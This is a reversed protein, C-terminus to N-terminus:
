NKSWRAPDGIDITSGISDFIKSKTDMTSLLLYEILVSYREEVEPYLETIVKKEYINNYFEYTIEIMEIVAIYLGVLDGRRIRRNISELIGYLEIPRKIIHFLTGSIMNKDCKDLSSNKPSGDMLILVMNNLIQKHHEIANLFPEWEFYNVDHLYKFFNNYLDSFVNFGMKPLIKNVLQAANFRIHINTIQNNINGMLQGCFDFTETKIEGYFDFHNPYDMFQTITDIFMLIDSSLEDSDFPLKHCIQLYTYCAKQIIANDEKFLLEKFRDLNKKHENVAFQDGFAAMQNIGILSNSYSRLVIMHFVMMGYMFTVYLKHDISLEPIESINYETIKYTDGKLINTAVRGIGYYKMLKVLIRMLFVCYHYASCRSKADMRLFDRTYEINVHIARHIYNILAEHITEDNILPNITEMVENTPTLWKKIFFLSRFISNKEYDKGTSLKKREEKKNKPFIKRFCEYSWIKHTIFLRIHNDPIKQATDLLKELIDYIEDASYKKSIYEMYNGMLESVIIYKEYSACAYFQLIFMKTHQEDISGEMFLKLSDYLLHLTNQTTLENTINPTEVPNQSFKKYMDIIYVLQQGDVDTKTLNNIFELEYDIAPHSEEM